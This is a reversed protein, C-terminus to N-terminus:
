SRVTINSVVYESTRSLSYLQLAHNLNGCKITLKQVHAFLSKFSYISYVFAMKDFAFIVFFIIRGTKIKKMLSVCVFIHSSRGSNVACVYGTM